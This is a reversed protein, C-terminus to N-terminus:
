YLVGGVSLEEFAGCIIITDAGNTSLATRKEGAEKKTNAIVRIVGGEVGGYIDDVLDSLVIWRCVSQSKIEDITIYDGINM